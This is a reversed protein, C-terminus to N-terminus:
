FDREGRPLIKPPKGATLPERNSEARSFGDLKRRWNKRSHTEFTATKESNPDTITMTQTGDKKNKVVSQTLIEFPRGLLIDYPADKLVHFQLYVRIDGFDLPVNRALGLTSQTEGNAAEMIIKVKPDFKIGLDKMTDSNGSVIQSGGDLISEVPSKGNVVPYLCRLAASTMGTFIQKPREGPALSELYQVVPDEIIIAGKPMDGVAEELITIYQRFPLDQINIADPRKIDCDSDDETDTAFPLEDTMVSQEQALLVGEMEQNSHPKRSKSTKAKLDRQLAPSGGLLHKIKVPVETEMIKKMTEVTARPDDLPTKVTYSKEKDLVPIPEKRGVEFPKRPLAPTRPVHEVPPVNRYPMEATPAAGVNEPYKDDESDTVEEFTVQRSKKPPLIESKKPPLIEKGKAPRVKGPTKIIDEMSQDDSKEVEEPPKSKQPKKGRAGKRPAKL